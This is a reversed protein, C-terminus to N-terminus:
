HCCQGGVEAAVKLRLNVEASTFAPEDTAKKKAQVAEVQTLWKQLEALQLCPQPPRQNSAPCQSIALQANASQKSAHGCSVPSAQAALVQTVAGAM